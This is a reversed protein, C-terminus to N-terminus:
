VIGSTLMSLVAFYPQWSVCLRPRCVAVSVPGVFACSSVQFITDKAVYVVPRARLFFTSLFHGRASTARCRLMEPHPVCTASGLTFHSGGVRRSRCESRRGM